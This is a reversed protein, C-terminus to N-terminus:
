SLPQQMGFNASYVIREGDRCYAYPVLFVLRIPPQYTNARLSEATECLTCPILRLVTGVMSLRLEPRVHGVVRRGNSRFALWGDAHQSQKLLYWLFLSAHM